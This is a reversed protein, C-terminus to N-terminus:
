KYWKTVLDALLEKTYKCNDKMIRELMDSQLTNSYPVKRFRSIYFKKDEQLKLYRKLVYRLISDYGIEGEHIYNKQFLAFESMFLNLKVTTEEPVNLCETNAVEIKDALIKIETLLYELIKEPHEIATVYLNHFEKAIELLLLQSYTSDSISNSCYHKQTRLIRSEIKVYEDILKDLARKRKLYNKLWDELDEECKKKKKKYSDYAKRNEELM